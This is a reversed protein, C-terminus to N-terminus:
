RRPELALGQLAAEGPRRRQGNLVRGIFTFRVLYHYSLLAIVLTVGVIAPFKIAWHLHLPGLADELALVLPYHALYIWYSADAVYRRPASEKALHQLGFGTIGLTWCWSGFAYAFGFVTRGAVMAEHSMRLAIPLPCLAAVVTAGAAAVLYGAYRQRLVDLLDVNRQMLWGFAFAISYEVLPTIQPTLGTNPTALGGFITYDKEALLGASLLAMLALPAHWRNRFLGRLARDAAAAVRGQRDFRGLALDAASILAYILLLYYLFWLYSLPFSAVSLPEDIFVDLRVRHESPWSWAAAVMPFLILWGVVLPVLIRQLRDSWFARMGKREIVLRAFFGAMLFFLSMRFMHGVFAVLALLRSPSPDNIPVIGPQVLEQPIFFLATHHVVGLLLAFARVADLAHLRDGTTM